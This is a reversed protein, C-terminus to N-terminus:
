PEEGLLQAVRARLAEAAVPKEIVRRGERALFARAQETVAGGTLLLVRDALPPAAARLRELLDMGNLGPMMVDCVIVDPAPGALIRELARAASTEEEIDHGSLMRAVARCVMPEDDVVLVRGRRTAGRATAEARASAGAAAAPFRLTFTTGREADSRMAIEGGLSTVIRHCISLGLGTGRGPPKTTFFPEFVRHQLAAPIGPGTDEIEIRVSGDPDPATRVRVENREPAGEPLAEAANVLLNLFVQGLRARAGRVPPVPALDEVVSARHRLVNRALQLTSRLVEVVDVPVAEDADPRSFTRLDRVIAAARAAGERADAVAARVEDPDPVAASGAPGLAEALWDLNAAVYALPNNLEHAVGAAVTGVSAMRDALVIGALLERRETVDSLVGVMRLAEGAPGREVVRARNLVWREEGGPGRLRAEFAAAPREGSLLRELERAVGEVDDPHTLAQARAIPFPGDGPLGFRERWRPTIVMADRAVDWDWVAHDTSDLAIQLREESTRLRAEAERARRERAIADALATRATRNWLLAIVGTLASLIAAEVLVIGNPMASPVVERVLWGAAGLTAIAALAAAAVGRPRLTAGAFLLVFPFSFPAIALQGRAEVSVLLAALGAAICLWAAPEPRRPAWWGALALIPLLTVVSAILLPPEGIAVTYPLAVGISASAGWAIARVNRARLARDREGLEAADAPAPRSEDM